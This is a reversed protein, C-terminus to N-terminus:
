DPVQTVRYRRFLVTFFHALREHAEAQPQLEAVGFRCVECGLFMLERSGRATKAYAQAGNYHHPGDVEIM